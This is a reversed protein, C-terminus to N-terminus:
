FRAVLWIGGILLGCGVLRLPSASHQRLGAVGFQDMVVSTLLAATLSVGTFLGSGLKQVVLLGIM